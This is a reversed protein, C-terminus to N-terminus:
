VDGCTEHPKLDRINIEEHLCWQKVPATTAM